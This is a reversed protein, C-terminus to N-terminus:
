CHMLSCDLSMFCCDLNMRRCNFRKLRLESWQGGVNRILKDFRLNLAISCMKKPPVNAGIVQIDTRCNIVGV